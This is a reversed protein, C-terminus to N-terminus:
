IKYIEIFVALNDFGLRSAARRVREITAEGRGSSIRRMGGARHLTVLLHWHEKTAEDDVRLLQEKQLSLEVGCHVRV